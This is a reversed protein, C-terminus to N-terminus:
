SGRSTDLHELASPETDGSENAFVRTHHALSGGVEPEEGRGRTAMNSVDFTCELRM